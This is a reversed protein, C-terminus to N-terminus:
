LRSFGVKLRNKVKMAKFVEFKMLIQRKLGKFICIRLCNKVKWGKFVGFKTLNQM